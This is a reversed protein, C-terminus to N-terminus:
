IVYDQIFSEGDLENEASDTRSATPDGSTEESSSSVSTDKGRWWKFTFPTPQPKTEEYM